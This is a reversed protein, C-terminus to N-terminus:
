GFLSGLWGSVMAIGSGIWSVPPPTVAAITSGIATVGSTVKKTLSAEPDRWTAAATTWDAAMIGYNLFPVFRGAMKAGQKLLGKGAAKAGAEAAAEAGEALAQRAAAHNATGTAGALTGGKKAAERAVSEVSRSAATQTADAIAERAAQRAAAKVVDEKAGGVNQRFAEAAAKKARYDVSLESAWLINSVQGLDASIAQSGAAIARDQERTDEHSFM